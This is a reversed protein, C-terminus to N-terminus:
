PKCTNCIRYVVGRQQKEWNILEQRDFSARKPAFTIEDPRAFKFHGCSALHLMLNSGRINVVFSDPYNIMWRAFEESSERSGDFIKM